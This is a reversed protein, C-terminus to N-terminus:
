RGSGEGAQLAAPAGDALRALLFVGRGEKSVLPALGDAPRLMRNLAAGVRLRREMPFVTLRLRCTDSVLDSLSPALVALREVAFGHAHMLRTLGQKTWRTLHHPPYDIVRTLRRYVALLRSDNNPVSLAMWGSAKLHARVMAIFGSPNELHELVEFFTIVDYQRPEQQLFDEARMCFLPLDRYHSRGAQVAERDTDIGMADYGCRGAAAVFDGTGCGVDLLRGGRAPRAHLFEQHFWGLYQGVCQTRGEYVTAIRADGQATQMPDSFEVACDPCRFMRYRGREETLLHGGPLGCAPCTLAM